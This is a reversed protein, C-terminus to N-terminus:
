LGVFKSGRAVQPLIFDHVFDGDAVAVASTAVAMLSGTRCGGDLAFKVNRRFGDDAVPAFEGDPEVVLFDQGFAKKEDRGVLFDDGGEPLVHGPLAGSGRLKRKGGPGPAESAGFGLCVAM